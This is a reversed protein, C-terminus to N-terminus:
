VDAVGSWGLPTAVFLFTRLEVPLTLASTSGNLNVGPPRISVTGSAVRREVGCFQGAIGASWAPLTFTGAAGIPTTYGLKLAGDRYLVDAFPLRPVSGEQQLQFLRDIESALAQLERQLSPDDTTFRRPGEYRAM